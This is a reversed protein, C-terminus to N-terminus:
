GTDKGATTDLCMKIHKFGGTFYRNARNQLEFMQTKETKWYKLHFTLNMEPNVGM